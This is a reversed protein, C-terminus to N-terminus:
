KKKIIVNKGGIMKVLMLMAREEIEALDDYLIKDAIDFHDLANQIHDPTNDAINDLLSEAIYRAANTIERKTM